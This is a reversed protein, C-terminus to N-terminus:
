PGRGEWGGVEVQGHPGGAPRTSIWRSVISIRISISISISISICIVRSEANLLMVATRLSSTAIM